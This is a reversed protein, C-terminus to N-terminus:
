RGEEVRHASATDTLLRSTAKVIAERDLKGIAADLRLRAMLYAGRAQTLEHRASFLREEADLREVIDRLGVKYGLEAAQRAKYASQTAATLAAVQAQSENVALFAAQADLRAQRKADELELEAQSALKENQRLTAWTGGGAYLPVDLQVGIQENRINYGTRFQGYTADNYGLSGVLSLSPSATGIAHTVKEDAQKASNSALRV